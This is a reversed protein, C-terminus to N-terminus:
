VPLLTVHSPGFLTRFPDLADLDGRPHFFAQGLDQATTTVTGNAGTRVVRLLKGDANAVSVAM